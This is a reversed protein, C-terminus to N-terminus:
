KEHNSSINSTLMVRSIANLECINQHHSPPIVKKNRVKDKPHRDKIVDKLVYSGKVATMTLTKFFSKRLTLVVLGNVEEVQYRPAGKLKLPENTVTELTDIVHDLIEGDSLHETTPSLILELLEKLQENTTKM